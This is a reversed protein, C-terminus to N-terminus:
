QETRITEHTYNLGALFDLVTHDSKIAHLGLEAVM